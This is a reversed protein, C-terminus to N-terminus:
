IQKMEIEINRKDKDKKDRFENDLLPVELNDVDLM